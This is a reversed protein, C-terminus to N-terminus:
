KKDAYFIGLTGRDVYYYQHVGGSGQSWTNLDFSESGSKSGDIKYV